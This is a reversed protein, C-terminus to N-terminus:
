FKSLYVILKIDYCQSITGSFTNKKKGLTECSKNKTININEHLDYKMNPPWNPNKLGSM